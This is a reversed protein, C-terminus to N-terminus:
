FFSSYQFTPILQLFYLLTFAYSDLRIKKLAVEIGAKREFARYVVGYTGEGIKKLDHFRDLENNM